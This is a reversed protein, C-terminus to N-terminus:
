DVQVGISRMVERKLKSITMDSNVYFINSEGTVLRGKLCLDTM